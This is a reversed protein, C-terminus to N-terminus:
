DAHRVGDTSLADELLSRAFIHRYTTYWNRTTSSLYATIM